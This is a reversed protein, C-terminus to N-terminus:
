AEEKHPMTDRRGRNGSRFRPLRVPKTMWVWPEGARSHRPGEIVSQRLRRLPQPNQPRACSVGSRRRTIVDCVPNHALQGGSTSPQPRVPQKWPPGLSRSPNDGSRPPRGRHPNAPRGCPIWMSPARDTASVRHPHRRATVAVPRPHRGIGRSLGPRLARSAHHRLCAGGQLPEGRTAAPANDM